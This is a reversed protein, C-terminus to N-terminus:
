VSTGVGFSDNDQEFTLVAGGVPLEVVPSATFRM